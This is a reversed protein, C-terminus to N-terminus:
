RARRARFEGPTEGTVRRFRASFHALSSYGLRQAVAELKGDGDLLLAEAARVRALVQEGRFTTGADHLARQLTRTSVGVARAAGALDLDRAREVLLDRLRRLPLPTDHRGDVAATVDACAQRADDRALWAFAEARDSFLVAHVLPAVREYFVGTITASWLDASPRVIAAHRVRKAIEPLDVFQELALEFGAKSVAELRQYDVVVDYRAALAPHLPLAFLRRLAPFDSEDTRGFYVAGALTPSHAWTLFHPGTVYHGVPAELFAEVDAAREVDL